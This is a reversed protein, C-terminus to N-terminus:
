IIYKNIKNIIFSNNKTFNIGLGPTKKLKIFGNSIVYNNELFCYDKPLALTNYEIFNCNKLILAANLNSYFSISNTWNHIVIKKIKKQLSILEQLSVRNLDPQLYKISRFKSFRLFEKYNSFSEGVAFNFKNSFFKYNQSIPDLPEEIFYYNLEQLKKLFYVTEKSYKLRCGLDLMLKFNDGASRRLEKCVRLLKDLDIKPKKKIRLHHDIFISPTSPRFKFGFFKKEKALNLENILTKYNDKEFSVGGSSYLPIKNKSYNFLKFSNSNNYKGDIDFLAQNFAAFLSASVDDKYNVLIKILNKKIKFFDGKYFNVSKILKRKLVKNIKKTDIYTSLEGYGILGNTMEVELFFFGNLYFRPPPFNIKKKKKYDIHNLSINKIKLM